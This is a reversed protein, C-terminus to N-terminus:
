RPREKMGVERIEDGPLEQLGEDVCREGVEPKIRM